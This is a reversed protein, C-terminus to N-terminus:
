DGKRLQVLLGLKRGLRSKRKVLLHHGLGYYFSNFWGAVVLLKIAM